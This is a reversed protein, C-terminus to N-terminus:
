EGFLWDLLHRRGIELATEKDECKVLLKGSPFLTLKTDGTFIHCLRTQIKAEWGAAIIKQGVRDLDIQRVDRPEIQWSTNGSCMELMFGEEHVEADSM